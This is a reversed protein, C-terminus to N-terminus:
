RTVYKSIFETVRKEYGAKDDRYATGHQADHVIFIEKESRCEEYLRNVMEYPVFADADGHILLIPTKSKAVQELASAEEFSYGARIKTLLSTSQIMPFSTLHYMEKLQYELQDKVSTYACDSVIAKVNDPLNEGSTM